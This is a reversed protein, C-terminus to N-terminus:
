VCVLFLSLFVSRVIMVFVVLLFFPRTEFSDFVNRSFFFEAGFRTTLTAFDKKAPTFFSNRIHIYPFVLVICAFLAKIEVLTHIKRFVKTM